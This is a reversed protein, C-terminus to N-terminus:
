DGGTVPQQIRTVKNLRIVPKMGVYEICKIADHDVQNCAIWSDLISERRNDYDDNIFKSTIEMDFFQTILERNEVDNGKSDSCICVSWGEVIGKGRFFPIMM